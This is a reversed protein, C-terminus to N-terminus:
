ASRREPLQDTPTALRLSEPSQHAENDDSGDLRVHLPWPCASAAPPYGCQAHGCERGPGGDAVQQQWVHRKCLCVVILGHWPGYDPDDIIVRTGPVLLATDVAPASPSSM